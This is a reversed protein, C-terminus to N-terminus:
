NQPIDSLPFFKLNGYRFRGEFEEDLRDLVTQAWAPPVDKYILEQHFMVNSLIELAHRYLDDPSSFMSVPFIQESTHSEM